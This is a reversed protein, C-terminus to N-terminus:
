EEDSKKLATEPLTIVEGRQEGQYWGEPADPVPEERVTRSARRSGNRRRTDFTYTKYTVGPLLGLRTLVAFLVVACILLLVIGLILPMMFVLVALILASILLGRV